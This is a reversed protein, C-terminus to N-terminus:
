VFAVAIGDIFNVKVRLTELWTLYENEIDKGYIENLDPGVRCDGNEQFCLLM